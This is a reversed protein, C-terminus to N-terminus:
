TIRALIRYFTSNASPSAPYPNPLAGYLEFKQHLLGAPTGTTFGSPWGMPRIYPVSGVGEFSMAASTFVVLYLCQHKTVALSPSAEKTGTTDGAITGSDYLRAGALGTTASPSYIGLRLTSGATGATGQYVQIRDLTGAKPCVFGHAYLTNAALAINGASGLLPWYHDSGFYSQTGHFGDLPDAGGGGAAAITLTGAGDDYTLDIGTGEILVSAVRDDVAEAFDTIETSPHTHSTPPAGGPEVAITIIDGIDSLTIDIGSGAVLAAGVDDRAQEATYGAVPTTAVWEGPTADWSLVMGDTPSPANVDSLADLTSAGVAAEVADWTAGNSRYLTNTDTVFYLSGEPMTAPRSALTGRGITTALTAM